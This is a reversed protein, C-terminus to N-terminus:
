LIKIVCDFFKMVRCVYQNISVMFCGTGYTCKCENKSCFQGLTAAHQDGLIGSIPVGNLSPNTCFGNVYGYIEASSKIEPLMAAKAINLTNLIETSWQTTQLDMMMTRSANTVLIFSFNIEYLMCLKKFQRIKILHM